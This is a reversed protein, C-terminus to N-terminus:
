MDMWVSASSSWTKLMQLRSPLLSPIMHAVRQGVDLAPQRVARGEQKHVADLFGGVLPDHAIAQEGRLVEEELPM